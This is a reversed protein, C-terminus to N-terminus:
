RKPIEGKEKSREKREKGKETERDRKSGAATTPMTGTKIWVKVPNKVVVTHLPM